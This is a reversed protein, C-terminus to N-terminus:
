RRLRQQKERVAPGILSAIAGDSFGVFSRGLEASIQDLFHVALPAVDEPRERLPPVVISLVNLRYYLDERFQGNEVMSVLDRHTSAIIRVDMPIDQNGGVRRYSREQLVRLLKAQLGPHM